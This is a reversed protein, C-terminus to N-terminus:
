DLFYSNFERTIDYENGLMLLGAASPRRKGNNDIGIAGIRPLFKEDDLTKWVHGPRSLKM